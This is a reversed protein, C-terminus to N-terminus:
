RRLAAEREQERLYKTYLRDYEADIAKQLEGFRTEFKQKEEQASLKSVVPLLVNIFARLEIIEKKTKLIEDGAFASRSIMKDEELVSPDDKAKEYLMRVSKVINDTVNNTSKAESLYNESEYGALLSIKGQTIRKIEKIKDILEQLSERNSLTKAKM